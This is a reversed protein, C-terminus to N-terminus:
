DVRVGASRVAAGWKALEGKLFSRLEEPRSGVPEAGDAILRARVESSEVASRSAQQIRDIVAGPTGAPAFLAYWASVDYDPLGSEAMTPLEPLQPARKKGTIALARVRNARIHPLNSGLAGIYVQAQGSVVDALAALAGKYPVHVLDIGAQTKLMEPALHNLTGNGASAYLVKGRNAKAHAILEKVSRAPVAPHVVLVDTVLNLLSVPAFDKEPHYPLSAYLAPTISFSVDTLLLTHGDAPAKAVIAAGITTGAGPRNDVVIPVGWAETLRQGMGRALIDVGGGPPYVVVLRVPKIPYDPPQAALASAATLSATVALVARAVGTRMRRLTAPMMRVADM